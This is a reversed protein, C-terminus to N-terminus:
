KGPRKVSLDKNWRYHFYNSLLKERYEKINSEKNILSFLQGSNTMDGYFEIGLVRNNQIFVKRISNFGKSILETCNKPLNTVNGMSLFPIDNIHVINYSQFGPYKCKKGVINLGAVHGQEVANSWTAKLGPKGYICDFSEAVDGAAFIDKINTEMFENVIIGQNTKINSDKVIQINPKVGVTLLVMDCDLTGDELKLGEVKDDDIIEKVTNNLIFNIGIKELKEKAIDAIEKDFINALIQDLSEIVYVEKKILNIAQAIEIGVFGGGIVSIKKAKKLGKVISKCSELNSVIYVEKKNLGSIKPIIPKSGIAILLKDFGLTEDTKNKSNNKLHVIKKSSNVKIAEKGMIFNINNKTFYDSDLRNLVEMSIQDSIFDPLSCLSYPLCDENSVITIDINKNASRIAQVASIGAGGAGLVLVNM